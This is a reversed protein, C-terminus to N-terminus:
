EFRPDAKADAVVKDYLETSVWAPPTFINRINDVIRFTEGDDTAIQVVPYYRRGIVIQLLGKGKHTALRAAVGEPAAPLIHKAASQYLVSLASGYARQEASEDWSFKLKHVDDSGSEAWVIATDKHDHYAKKADAETVFQIVCSSVVAGAHVKEVVDDLGLKKIVENAAAEMDSRGYNCFFGKLRLCQPRSAENALSFKNDVSQARHPAFGVRRRTGPSAGERYLPPFESTSQSTQTSLLKFKDELEKFRTQFGTNQDEHKKTLDALNQKMESQTELMQSITGSISASLSGISNKTEEQSTVLAQQMTTINQNMAQMMQFMSGLDAGMNEKNSAGQQVASLM